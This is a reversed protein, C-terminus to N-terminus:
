SGRESAIREACAPCRLMHQGLIPDDVKLCGCGQRTFAPWQWPLPDFRAALRDQELIDQTRRKANSRNSM